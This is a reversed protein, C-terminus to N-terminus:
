LVLPVQQMPYHSPAFMWAEIAWRDRNRGAPLSTRHLFMHDFLMADGAEFEPSAMPQDGLLELVKGHGVCWSLEADHTGTEVIEDLRRPVMDMACAETGCKSLAVWLNVSRVDRGLFAGDQHWATTTMSAPVKRFTSKGVSLAPQEGFYEAVMGQIGTRKLLATLEGLMRPSDGGYVGGASMLWPRGTALPGDEALPVAAFWPTPPVSNDNFWVASDRMANDVGERLREAELAPILGRVLLAGHHLIAGALIATSLRAADIEPIGQLGPYPDAFEPPWDAREQRAPSGEDFASMRWLVALREIEEDAALEPHAAVWDLAQRYRGQGAADITAQKLDDNSM